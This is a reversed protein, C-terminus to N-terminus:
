SKLYQDIIEKVADFGVGFEAMYGAARLRQLCESQESIHPTAWEGNVKKLKTGEAKLEIFLGFYYGSNDDEDVVFSGHAIFLDPWGKSHQIAKSMGAQARSLNLGTLDFHYMVKPYRLRLYHAVQKCLQYEPNARRPQRTKFVKVKM